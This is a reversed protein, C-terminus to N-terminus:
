CWTRHKEVVYEMGDYDKIVWEVDDPIEVVKIVSWEGNAKGGLEEIVEILYPDNRAITKYQLSCLEESGYPLVLKIRELLDFPIKSYNYDGNEDIEFYIPQKTLEAYRLLAAHSLLFFSHSKNIAIKM